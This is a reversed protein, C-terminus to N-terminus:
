CLVIANKVHHGHSELLQRFRHWLLELHATNKPM